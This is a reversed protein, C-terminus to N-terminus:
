FLRDITAMHLFLRNKIRPFRVFDYGECFARADDNIADVIVAVSAVQTAVQRSRYLADLLLRRGLGQGHHDEDVALRGLLTVPVLSYRPLRKALEDPWEGLDVGGSSLTYYGLVTPDPPAILVSLRPPM